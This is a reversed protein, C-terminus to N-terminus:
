VPHLCGVRLLFRNRKEDRPWVPLHIHQDYRGFRCEDGHCRMFYGQMKRSGRLIPPLLNTLALYGGKAFYVFTNEAAWSNSVSKLLSSVANAVTKRRAADDKLYQRLGYLTSKATKDM